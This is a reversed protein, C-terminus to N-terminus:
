MCENFVFCGIRWVIHWVKEYACSDVGFQDIQLKSFSDSQYGHQSIKLRLSALKFFAM